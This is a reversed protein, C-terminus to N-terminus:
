LPGKNRIVIDSRNEIGWWSLEQDDDDLRALAGDGMKLWIEITGITATTRAKRLSKMIKLRFIRMKMTSLVRLVSPPSLSAAIDAMRSHLVLPVSCHYVNLDILLKSLKDERDAAPVADAPKGHKDCLALWQPHEAIKKEDAGDVNKSIYSLYFLECDIREKSSIAASDFSKLSSIKAIVFQRTYRAEDSVETIPNGTVNLTELNPFWRSLMDIDSWAELQNSSLVLGKVRYLPTYESELPTINKICNSSVVLHELGTFDQLSHCIHRWDSLDNGDLNVSQITSITDGPSTDSSLRTLHNYGFEVLHLLPMFAIVNTLEEWTMMTSSLQLELLKLFASSSLPRAIPMFRNRNLSLRQLIPLEASIMAVVAWSSILSASLDLGRINPCIKHIEGVPDCVAVKENDLSVERLCGVSAFKNRIKDMGVVEVEIAGNSSGLTVKEQSLSGHASEVYKGILADLFSQGYSIASSPRIFSGSGPMRCSFYRKGDKSGDHKGRNPDDWEIGLWISPTGEISGVYRITGLQGSSVCIRTGETPLKGHLESDM